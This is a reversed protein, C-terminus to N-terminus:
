PRTANRTQDVDRAIQAILEAENGFVAEDRLREWLEVIVRQGYLDGDFDLLFAEVRRESGGYHPNIGISVAARYDLGAGAYIGYRPVLVARDVRLNATPFGLTGGRADGSVVLGEVEVPRGLQAAAGRVDGELVLERIRRSAVGPVLPTERAEAGLREFVGLDGGRKHGFRFGHGAVVVEAGLALVHSQAFAEAGTAAIEPTFEVVLTDEIGLEELLELRRELTSLLQVGYGLVERPHPHFTVATPTGGAGIAQRVVAQHGLHVGDFTGIAVARPKRELEAPARAVNV